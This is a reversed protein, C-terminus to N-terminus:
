AEEWGKKEREGKVELEKTGNVKSEYKVRQGAKM